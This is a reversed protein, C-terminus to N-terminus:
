LSLKIIIVKESRVFGGQFLTFCTQSVSIKHANSSLPVVNLIKLNRAVSRKGENKIITRKTTCITSHRVKLSYSYVDLTMERPLKNM